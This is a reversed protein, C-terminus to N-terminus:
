KEYDRVWQALERRLEPIVAEQIEFQVLIRAIKSLRPFHSYYRDPLRDKIVIPGLFLLFYSYSEATWYSRNSISRVRDAIATPVTANSALIESNISKWDAQSVVFDDELRTSAPGALIGVKFVGGWLDMLEKVVNEFMAHM